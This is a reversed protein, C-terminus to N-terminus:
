YQMYNSKKSGNKPHNKSSMLADHVSSHSHKGIWVCTTWWGMLGDNGSSWVEKSHKTIVSHSFSRKSAIYLQCFASFVSWKGNAMLSLDGANPVHRLSWNSDTLVCSKQFVWMSSSGEMWHAYMWGPNAAVNLKQHMNGLITLQKGMVILNNSNM